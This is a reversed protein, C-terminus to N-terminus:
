HKKVQMGTFGKWAPIISLLFLKETGAFYSGM